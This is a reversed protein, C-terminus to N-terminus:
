RLRGEIEDAAQRAIERKEEDSVGGALAEIRDLQEDTGTELRASAGDPGELANLLRDFLGAWTEDDRKEIALANRTPEPVRITRWETSGDGM